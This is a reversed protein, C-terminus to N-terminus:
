VTMSNAPAANLAPRKNRLLNLMVLQVSSVRTWTQRTRTSAGHVSPVFRETRTLRIKLNGPWVNLVFWAEMEHQGEQVVFTVHHSVNQIPQRRTKLAIKVRLWAKNIKTSGLFAGWAIRSATRAKTIVLQAIKARKLGPNM